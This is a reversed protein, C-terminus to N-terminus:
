AMCSSALSKRRRETRGSASVKFEGLISPARSFFSMDTIQKGEIFPWFDGHIPHHWRLGDFAAGLANLHDRDRFLHSDNTM